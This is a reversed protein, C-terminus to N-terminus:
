DDECVEVDLRGDDIEAELELVRGNGIFDVEVKDADDDLDITSTWGASPRAEVLAVESGDVSITVTGADRVQFTGGGADAPRECEPGALVSAPPEGTGEAPPATASTTTPVSGDATVTVDTTPVAADDGDSCAGATMAIALGLLAAVARTPRPSTM